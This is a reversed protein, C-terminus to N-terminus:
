LASIFSSTQVLLICHLTILLLTQLYWFVIELNVGCDNTFVFLVPFTTQGDHHLYESIICLSEQRMRCLGKAPILLQWFSKIVLAEM